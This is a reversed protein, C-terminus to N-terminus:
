QVRTCGFSSETKTVADYQHIGISSAYSYAQTISGDKATLRLVLEDTKSKSVSVKMGRFAGIEKLQDNKLEVLLPSQNELGDCQLKQIGAQANTSMLLAIAGLYKKM